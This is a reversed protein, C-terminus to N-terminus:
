VNDTFFESVPTKLEPLVTSVIPKDGAATHRRVRAGAPFEFVEVRRRAPDMLWCEQVGYRRYWRLKVTRDRVATHRSLVEVVLDPAGWIQGKVITLRARAIFVVDPQLVLARDADLVVDIPSVCVRGLRCERVHAALVVATRTVVAQHDWLPAPPERVMGWVLERRRMEEAGALYDSTALRHRMAEGRFGPGQVPKVASSSSAM